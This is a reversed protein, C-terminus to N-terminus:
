RAARRIPGLALPPSALHARTEGPPLDDNVGEDLDVEYEEILFPLDNEAEDETTMRLDSADEGRTAGALFTCGLDGALDAAADAEYPDVDFEVGGGDNPHHHYSRVEDDLTPVVDGMEAKPNTKGHLPPLSFEEDLEAMPLKDRLAPAPSLHLRPRAAPASGKASGTSRAGGPEKDMGMEKKATNRNSV